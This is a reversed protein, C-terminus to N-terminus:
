VLRAYNQCIKRALDPVDRPTIVLGGATIISSSEMNEGARRKYVSSAIECCAEVIEPQYQWLYVSSGNAHTAATSGNEGRAIVTLDVGAKSKTAMIENEIKILQGGTADLGATRALTFTTDSINLGAAEVVTTIRKWARTAYQEHYGWVGALSIVYESNSSADVQFYVSTTDTLRVAYKPYENRPLLNYAAPLIATGEGNLLSTVALLDEDMWLQRGDGNPLSFYRTEVRPYFKRGTASDIYRSAAELIKDIVVDDAANPTQNAIAYDRFEDLTAYANTTTM